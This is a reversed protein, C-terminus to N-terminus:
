PPLQSSGDNGKSLGPLALWAPQAGEGALPHARTLPVAPHTPGGYRSGEPTGSFTELFCFHGLQTPPQCSSRPQTCCSTGSGRSGPHQPLDLVHTTRSEKSIPDAAEGGLRELLAKVSQSFRGRSLELEAARKGVLAARAESERRCGARRRTAAPGKLPQDDKDPSAQRNLRVIGATKHQKEKSKSQAEERCEQTQM